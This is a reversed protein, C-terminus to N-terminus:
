RRLRKSKPWSPFHFYFTFTFTTQQFPVLSPQELKLFTHRVTHVSHSSLRVVSHLLNFSPLKSFVLCPFPQSNPVCLKPVGSATHHSTHFNAHMCPTCSSIVASTTVTVLFLLPLRPSGRFIPTRRVQSTALSAWRGHRKGVGTGHNAPFVCPHPAPVASAVVM